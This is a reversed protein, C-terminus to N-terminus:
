YQEYKRCQKYNYKSRSQNIDIFIENDIYNDCYFFDDNSIFHTNTLAIQLAKLITTKGSNNTGVLVTTNEFDIEINRFGRFGKIRLSQLRIAM